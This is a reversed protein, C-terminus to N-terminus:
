FSEKFPRLDIEHSWASPHQLHLQWYTEAIASAQLLGEQGKAEVFHPFQNRAREGDIVGDIVAHVVHIGRPGFERAMGQALARVGAKAASFATFPPKARMSATAGTFFVTGRKQPLMHKIVERGFLFAGLSNQQWLKTFTELDTELLPAPINSDVNYAAVDLVCGNQRVTELLRQMDAEITADVIVPTAVGGQEAIIAAVSDLKSLSRGAIFVPLGAAAFRMALAAGLGNIPGVGVVLAAKRASM